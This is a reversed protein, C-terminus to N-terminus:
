PKAWEVILPNEESGKEKDDWDLKSKAAYLIISSNGAGVQQLVASLIFDKVGSEIQPELGQLKKLFAKDKKKWELVTTPDVGTLKCAAGIRGLTRVISDLFLQKAIKTRLQEEKALNKPSKRPNKVAAKKRAVPKKATKKSAPKKSKPKAM